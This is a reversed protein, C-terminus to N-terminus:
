ERWEKLFARSENLDPLLEILQAHELDGLCSSYRLGFGTSIDKFNRTHEMVLRQDLQLTEFIRGGSNNIVICKVNAPLELLSSLDYSLSMDGLICYVTKKTSLGWGQATALQGDIGNVGRNAMIIFKKNQVLEFYRIPLSNGLFVQAGDPLFDHLSKMISIESNPYKKCLQDLVIISDDVFLSDNKPLADWFTEDDLLEKGSKKEVTGYSLGKLGRSDFSYVPLKKGELSRWLKSLPTHGIRIVGDFAGSKFLDLLKKETKILSLDKAGSAVEAYFPLGLTKFKEVLPRMPENEHSFLFLPNKIQNMFTQFNESEAPQNHLDKEDPTTIRVNVHAPYSLTTFDLTLFDNFDIDLYDKRFGRTIVEHDITQPAGTHRLNLPRDASLLLLPAESYFAEIMAPLCESVATGSTTCVLSLRNQAKGLGLAKFSAIREDTEMYIPFDQLLALLLHNRAGACFFVGEVDNQYKM